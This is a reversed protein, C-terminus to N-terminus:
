DERKPIVEYFGREVRKIKREFLLPNIISQFCEAQHVFREKDKQLFVYCDKATFATVKKSQLDALFKMRQTSPRKNIASDSPFVEKKSVLGKV